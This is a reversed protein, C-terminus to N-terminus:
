SALLATRHSLRPKKHRVCVMEGVGSSANGQATWHIVDICGHKSMNRNGGFALSHQWFFACIMCRLAATFVTSGTCLAITDLTIFGFFFFFIVLTFTDCRWLAICGDTKTENLLIDHKDNTLDRSILRKQTPTEPEKASSSLM